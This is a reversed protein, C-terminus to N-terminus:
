VWRKRYYLSLRQFVLKIESSNKSGVPDGDIEPVKLLRFFLYLNHINAEVPKRGAVAEEKDRRAKNKGSQPLNAAKAKDRITKRKKKM